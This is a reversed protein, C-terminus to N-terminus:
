FDCCWEEHDAEEPTKLLLAPNVFRQEPLELYARLLADAACILEPQEISANKLGSIQDYIWELMGDGYHAYELAFTAVRRGSKRERVSYIRRLGSRCFEPYTGVCHQMAEGEEQLQAANTLAEFRYLGWELRRIYPDWEDATPAGDPLVVPAQEAAWEKRRRLLAPWGAKLLGPETTEHTGTAFFWRGVLIVERIFEEASRPVYQNAVAAKWAARFFLPPVKALRAEPIDWFRLSAVLDPPPLVDMECAQLLRLYALANPGSSFPQDEHIWPRGLPEFRADGYDLYLRWGRSNIGLRALEAKLAGLDVPANERRSPNLWLALQRHTAEPM